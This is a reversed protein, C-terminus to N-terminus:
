SRVRVDKISAVEKRAESIVTRVMDSFYSGCGASETIHYEEKANQRAWQEARERTMFGRAKLYDQKTVVGDRMPGRLINFKGQRKWLKRTEAACEKHDQFDDLSKYICNGLYDSAIEKGRLFVRARATFNVLSGIELRHLTEEDAWSLDPCEEEVADIIVHFNETKWERITGLKYM